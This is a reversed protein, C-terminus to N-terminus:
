GAARSWPCADSARDPMARKRAGGLTASNVQVVAMGEPYDPRAPRTVYQKGALAEQNGSGAVPASADPGSEGGAHLPDRPLEDHHNLDEYGLALGYVRQGVLYPVSHEILRPNRHM